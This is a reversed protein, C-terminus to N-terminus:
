RPPMATLRDLQYTVEREVKGEMAYMRKMVLHQNGQFDLEATQVHEVKTSPMNSGHEFVFKIAAVDKNQAGQPVAVLTPQNGSSGYHTLKLKGKDLFYVSVMEHTTGPFLTEQVATGGSTVKYNATVNTLEPGESGHGSWDGALNKIRELAAKSESVKADVDSNTSHCAAALALVATFLFTRNM